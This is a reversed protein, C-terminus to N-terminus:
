ATRSMCMKVTNQLANDNVIRKYKYSEVTRLSFFRLLMDVMKSNKKVQYM